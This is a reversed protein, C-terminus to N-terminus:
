PTGGSIVDGSEIPNVHDDGDIILTSVTNAIFPLKTPGDLTVVPGSDGRIIDGIVISWYYDSGILVDIADSSCEDNSDDALDLNVLHPYKDIVVETQLPSFIAPFTLAQIVIDKRRKGQLTVQLVDCTEKKCRTSDFTNLSLRKQRLPALNLKVRHSDTIYSRQSGSDLLLRGPVLNNDVAYDRSRATQLM